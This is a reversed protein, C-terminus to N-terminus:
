MSKHHSVRYLLPFSKGREEYRQIYSGQIRYTAIGRQTFLLKRENSYRKTTSLAKESRGEANKPCILSIRLMPVTCGCSCFHLSRPLYRTDDIKFDRAYSTEYLFACMMLNEESPHTHKYIIM